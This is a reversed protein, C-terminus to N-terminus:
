GGLSRIVTKLDGMRNIRLGFNEGVKVTEGQAIPKNNVRLELPEDSSKHFEIIAGIGLRMVESIALKREALVVIVPVSLHLIRGVTNAPPKPSSSAQLVPM